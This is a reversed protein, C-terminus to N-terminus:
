TLWDSPVDVDSRRRLLVTSGKMPLTIRPRHHVTPALQASGSHGDSDSGTKGTTDHRDPHSTSERPSTTPLRSNVMTMPCRKLELEDLDSEWAVVLDTALDEGDSVVGEFTIKQDSYYVGDETPATIQAEPSETAIVTLRVQNSGAANEPDQFELTVETTTATILVDCTSIGDSDPVASECAVEGDSYWTATLDDSVHDPDSVAGRFSEIYGEFVEDGDSHSTIAAEPEANFAKVGTDSCSWSLSILIFLLSRPM